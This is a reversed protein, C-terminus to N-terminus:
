CQSEFCQGKDINVILELKCQRCFIPLNKAVTDGEVRYMMKVRCRPCIMRGDRVRIRGYTPTKQLAEM